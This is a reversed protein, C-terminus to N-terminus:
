VSKAKYINQFSYLNMCTSSFNKLRNDNPATNDLGSPSRLIILGKVVIEISDDVWRSLKLETDAFLEISLATLSPMPLVGDGSSGADKNRLTLLRLHFCSNAKRPSTRHGTKLPAVKDLISALETEMQNAYGDVTPDPSSFFSSSLITQEFLKLHISKINRYHYTRQPSKYRKTNLNTLILDHDSIEHSSVIHWQSLNQCPHPSSSILCLLGAM